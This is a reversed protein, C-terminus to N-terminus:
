GIEHLRKIVDRLDRCQNTAQPHSSRVLIAQLGVSTAGCIDAEYSDGIMWAEQPTDIHELVPTFAEHHPKEYGVTASTYIAEFHRALKLDAVLEPLEPVHNSLMVHEWGAASLTDLTPRVDAFRRWGESLYIERIEPVIADAEDAQVGEATLADHFVPYLTHWWDSATNITTHAEEPRHWPFGTELHPRIADVTLDISPDVREAATVCARSWGGERRALTGDFDWVLYAM